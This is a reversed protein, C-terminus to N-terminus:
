EGEIAERISITVDELITLADELNTIASEAADHKESGYLNEPMNEMYEEEEDKITELADMLEELQCIITKLKKRRLKNL